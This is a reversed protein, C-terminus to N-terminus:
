EGIASHGEGSCPLRHEKRCRTKKAGGRMNLWANIAAVPCEPYIVINLGIEQSEAGGGHIRDVDGIGAVTLGDAGDEGDSELCASAEDM